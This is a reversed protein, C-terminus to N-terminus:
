IVKGCNLAPESVAGAIDKYSLARKLINLASNYDANYSKRNCNNCKFHGQSLRKGTESCRSCIKSTNNEKIKIVPLGAWEAKYEIMQCLKNFPMNSIIRNFRKGKVNKRIGKLDGLVIIARHKQALDVINRSIKHLQDNVKQKETDGIKKITKLAKKNGLCKRLWSYHRRIGRVNKGYFYPKRNNFSGCVTAIVREGLDVALVNRPKILPIYKEITIYAFFDSKKRIIKSECINVDSPIPQHSKIAVWLGGYRGKVPIKLWYHAIETDCKEIRILDNRVSIPYDKNTKIKQYYRKAQQKNASYLGNDKGTQLFCQLNNYEQKLLRRKINTLHVIKAKITKKAV